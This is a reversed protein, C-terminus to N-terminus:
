AAEILARCRQANQSREERWRLREEKMRREVETEEATEAVEAEAEENLNALRQEAYYAADHGFHDVRRLDAGAALLLRVDEAQGCYAARMLPTIGGRGAKEIDAGAALLAKVCPTSEYGSEVALLLPTRGNSGAANPDASHKLLARTATVDSGDSSANWWLEDSPTVAFGLVACHLPTYGYHDTAHVDEGAAVLLDITREAAEHYGAYGYWSAASLLRGRDLTPDAGLRLLLGLADPNRAFAAQRLRTWGHRNRRNLDAGAQLLRQILETDGNDLAGSLADFGAEDVQDIQAGADLLLEAMAADGALMLPPRGFNSSRANVDAGSAVLRVVEDWEGRLVALCLLENQEAGGQGASRKRKERQKKM